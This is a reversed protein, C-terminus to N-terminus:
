SKFDSQHSRVQEIIWDAEDLPIDHGATPHAYLPLNWQAAIKESCHSSVFYDGHSTLILVNNIPSKEFTAQQAIKLQRFFNEIKIPNQKRFEVLDDLRALWKTKNNSTASMIFKETEIPSKQLLCKLVGLYNRPRLRHYFPSSSFSSNILTLCRIESPFMQAWRTAIMGGLSIGLLGLPEKLDPIQKRVAHVAEDITSPSMQDALYGSGPLDVCYVNELQLKNQFEKEFGLWHYRSRTLGRILVWNRPLQSNIM